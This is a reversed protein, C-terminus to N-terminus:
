TYSGLANTRSVSPQHGLASNRRRNEYHWLWGELRATGPHDIRGLKKIDIHVLEGPRSREYRVPQELGLRGLRVFRKQDLDGLGDLTANRADGRDGRGEGAVPFQQCM